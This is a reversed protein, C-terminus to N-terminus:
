VQSYKFILGQVYVQVFWLFFSFYYGIYYGHWFASVMFVYLQSLMRSKFPSRSYVCKRLWEQVMINWNSIKDRIHPTTEVIEPKCHVITNFNGAGDYSLGSSHVAAISVKWATYYKFRLTTISIFSYVGITLGSSEWFSDTKMYTTPFVVM